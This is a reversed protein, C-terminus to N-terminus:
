EKEEEARRRETVDSITVIDRGDALFAAHFEIDRVTGDKCTVKCERSGVGEEKDSDWTAIVEDRYVPDPYIRLFWDKVTPIEEASYGTIEEVGRNMRLITGDTDMIIVGLPLSEFLGDILDLQNKLAREMEKRKTIDRSVGLIGVPKGEEDRLLRTSNEVLITRGDRCYEETEFSVTRDPDATGAAEREMEENFRDLLAAYSAPTLKEEITQALSEEVTFGKMRLVSPSIYQIKFNLDAIWITDATNDAIGRFKEE